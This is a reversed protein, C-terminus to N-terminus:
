TGFKFAIEQRDHATTKSQGVSTAALKHRYLSQAVFEPRTSSRSVAGKLHQAWPSTVRWCWPGPRGLRFLHPDEKRHGQAYRSVQVAPIPQVGWVASPGFPGRPALPVPRQGIDRPLSAGRTRRAGRTSQPPERPGASDDHGEPPCADSPPAGCYLFVHFHSFFLTVAGTSPPGLSPWLRNNGATRGM